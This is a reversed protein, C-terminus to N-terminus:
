QENRKKRNKESRLRNCERCALRLPKGPGNGYLRRNEPTYVHGSPCAKRPNAAWWARMKASNIEAAKGRRVNEGRTVVELHAPNVCRPVRCLHDLVLGEPIPGRLAEYFHRHAYVQKSGRLFRGYGHENVRGDWLWCSV